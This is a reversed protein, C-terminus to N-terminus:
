NSLNVDIIQILDEFYGAAMAVKTGNPQWDIASIDMGEWLAQIMMGTDTEWIGAGTITSVALFRGDSNWSFGRALFIDRDASEFITAELVRLQKGTILDYIYVQENGALALRNEDASMSWIADPLRLVETLNGTAPDVRRVITELTNERRAGTTSAFLIYDNIAIVVPIDETTELNVPPTKVAVKYTMTDFVYLNYVSWDNTSFFWLEDGEANWFPKTADRLMKRIPTLEHCFTESHILQLPNIQWLALGCLGGHRNGWDAEFTAFHTGQPNWAAVTSYYGRENYNEIREVLEFDETYLAVDFGVAALLTGDPSWAVDSWDPTGAQAVDPSQSVLFLLFAVPWLKYWLRNHKM